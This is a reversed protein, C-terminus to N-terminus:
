IAIVTNVSDEKETETDDTCAGIHASNVITATATQAKGNRVAPGTATGIVLDQINIIDGAFTSLQEVMLEKLLLSTGFNLTSPQPFNM